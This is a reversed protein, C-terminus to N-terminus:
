FNLLDYKSTCGLKNKISDFYSEVTRQSLGMIAATAQASKGLKFHELCTLEQRSLGTVKKLFNQIKPDYIALPVNPASEFLQMGRETKINYDETKMRGILDKAEKKFYNNFKHLLDLRSLYLNTDTLNENVNAFLFAEMLHPSTNLSLFFHDAKFRKRLAKQTEEEVSCPLMVCGPRFLAPHAFYPNQLHMKNEFYYDHFEPTNTLLGFSGDAEVFSYTFIPINLSDLLPACIKKIKQEHKISYNKIIQTFHSM